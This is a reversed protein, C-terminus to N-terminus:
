GARVVRTKAMFDHGARSQDDWLPWLYNLLWPVFFSGGVATILFGKILVERLYAQGFTPTVGAETVVRIGVAKKGVTAGDLYSMAVPAYLLASVWYVIVWSVFIGFVNSIGDPPDVNTTSFPDDAFIIFGLLCIPLAIAMRVLIDLLHAGFRAGWGALVHAAGGADPQPAPVQFSPKTLSPGAGAQGAGPIGIPGGGPIGFPHNSQDSM